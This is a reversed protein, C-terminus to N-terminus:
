GDRRIMRPESPGPLGSSRAAYSVARTAALSGNRLPEPASVGQGGADTAISCAFSRILNLTPWRAAVGFHLPHRHIVVVRRLRVDLLNPSTGPDADSQSSALAFVDFALSRARCLDGIIAIVASACGGTASESGHGDCRHCDRVAPTSVSGEAKGGPAQLMLSRRRSTSRLRRQRDIENRQPQWERRVAPFDSSPRPM